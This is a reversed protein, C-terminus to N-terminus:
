HESSASSRPRPPETVYKQIYFSPESPAASSPSSSMPTAADMIWMCNQQFEMLLWPMRLCRRSTIPMTTISSGAAWLSAPTTTLSWSATSGGASATKRLFYVALVRLIFFLGYGSYPIIFDPLIAHTHGCTCILRMICLSHRVPAGGMFDALSRDYYAHIRCNGKTGCCPCTQLQPHFGAMFSDFLVKSSSKIHILKCFLSKERIMTYTPPAPAERTPCSGTYPLCVPIHSFSRVTTPTTRERKKTGYFSYRFPMSHDLPFRAAEQLM